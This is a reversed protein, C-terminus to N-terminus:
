FHQFSNEIFRWKADNWNKDLEAIKGELERVRIDEACEAFVSCFTTENIQDHLILDYREEQKEREASLEQRVSDLAAGLDAVQSELVRENLEARGKFEELTQDRSLLEARLAKVEARLSRVIDSRIKVVTSLAFLRRCLWGKMM